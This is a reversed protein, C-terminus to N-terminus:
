HEWNKDVYGGTAITHRQYISRSCSYRQFGVAGRRYTPLVTGAVSVVMVGDVGRKPKAVGPARRTGVTKLDM